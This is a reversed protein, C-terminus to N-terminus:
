GNSMAGLAFMAIAVFVIFGILITTFMATSSKLRKKRLIPRIMVYVLLSIFLIGAINRLYYSSMTPKASILSAVLM